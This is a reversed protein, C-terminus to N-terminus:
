ALAGNFMVDMPLDIVELATAHSNQVVGFTTILTLFISKLTGANERFLDIKKRLEKAYGADITFESSYFKM